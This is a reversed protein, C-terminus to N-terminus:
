DFGTEAVKIGNVLLMFKDFESALIPLYLHLCNFCLGPKVICLTLPVRYTLISDVIGALSQVDYNTIRVCEFHFSASGNQENTSKYKCIDM